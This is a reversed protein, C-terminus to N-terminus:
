MDVGLVQTLAFQGADRRTHPMGIGPSLPFLWRGAEHPIGSTHM